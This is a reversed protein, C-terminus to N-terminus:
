PNLLFSHFSNHGWGLWPRWTSCCMLTAEAALGSWCLSFPIVTLTLPSSTVPFPWVEWCYGTLSTPEISHHLPPVCLSIYLSLLGTPLVPVHAALPLPVDVATQCLINLQTKILISALTHWAWSFSHIFPFAPLRQPNLLSSGVSFSLFVPLHLVAPIYFQLCSLNFQLCPIWKWFLLFSLARSTSKIQFDGKPCQNRFKVLLLSIM